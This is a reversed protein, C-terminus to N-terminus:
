WGAIEKGTMAPNEIKLIQNDGQDQEVAVAAAVKGKVVVV